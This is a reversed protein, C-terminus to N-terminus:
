KNLYNDINIDSFVSISNNKIRKEIFKDLKGLSYDTFAKPHGIIVFNKKNEKNHTKFAKSLLSSKYGDISVVSYSYRTLLSMIQKNSTTSANGDGFAKHKKMGIKKVFIFKLFFFPSVKTSAIPLEIFEGDIDELCPDNSFKWFDNKKAEKFNFWQTKTLNQGKYFVTSDIKINNNIFAKRLKDFPQICWGGARYTNVKKQTIEELVNIYKKFIDDIETESFADLRYRSLNFEWKDNKYITDEWHPHIHLQIDHGEDSLSKIQDVVLNYDKELKPFKEKYQKLKILYGSDVFFVCKFNHKNAIEILKNTPEIICKEPSGSNGFFLEYDLTIYINM